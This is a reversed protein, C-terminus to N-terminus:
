SCLQRQLWEWLQLRTLAVPMHRCQAASSSYVALGSQLEWCHLGSSAHRLTPMIGSSLSCKCMSGEWHSCHNTTGGQGGCTWTKLSTESSAFVVSSPPPSAAASAAFLTLSSASAASLRAASTRMSTRSKAVCQLASDSCHICLSYRKSALSDTVKRLCSCASIRMMDELFAKLMALDMPNLVSRACPSAATWGLICAQSPLSPLQASIRASPGTATSCSGSMLLLHSAFSMIPSLTDKGPMSCELGTRHNSLRSGRTLGQVVVSELALGRSKNQVSSNPHM